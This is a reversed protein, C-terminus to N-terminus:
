SDSSGDMWRREEERRSQEGSAGCMGWLLLVLLAGIFMGVILGIGFM